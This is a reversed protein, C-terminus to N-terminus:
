AQVKRRRLLGIGGMGLLGAMAYFTPEPVVMLQNQGGNINNGGAPYTVWDVGGKYSKYNDLASTLYAQTLADNGIDAPNIPFQIVGYAVNNVNTWDPQSANWLSWIAWQLSAGDHGNNNVAGVGSVFQTGSNSGGLAADPLLYKSVLYAAEQQAQDTNASTLILPVVPAISGSIFRDDNCVSYQAIVAHTQTDVLQANFIGAGQGNPGSASGILGGNWNYQYTDAKATLSAGALFAVAMTGVALRSLMAIRRM